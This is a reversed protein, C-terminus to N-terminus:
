ACPVLDLIRKMEDLDVTFGDEAPHGVVFAFGLELRDAFEKYPLAFRDPPQIVVLTGSDALTYMTHALHSGEVGIIVPANLLRQAIEEATLKVPEVIDFGLKTLLQELAAENAVVRREGTTGRKLYVRKPTKSDSGKFHDQVRQRLERYRAAKSSNQSFDSYLTLESIRAATTRPPKPLSLLKRYSAEHGYANTTVTICPAGEPPLLGLPLEDRMYSGFYHSGAWQSMMHASKLKQVHGAQNAFLREAGFGPQAKAAGCYLFADRLDVDKIMYARTAAHEAQGGKVLLWQREWDCWPSIGTVRDMSGDLCIAPPVEAKEAPCIEWSHSAQSLLDKAHRAVLRRIGWKLYPTNLRM